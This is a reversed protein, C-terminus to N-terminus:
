AMAASSATCGSCQCPVFRENQTANQIIISVDREGSHTYLKPEEDIVVHHKGAFGFHDIEVGVFSRLATAHEPEARVDRAKHERDRTEIPYTKCERSACRRGISSYSM